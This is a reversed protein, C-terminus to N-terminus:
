EVHQISPNPPTQRTHISSLLLLRPILHLIALWRNKALGESRVVEEMTLTIAQSVLTKQRPPLTKVTPYPRHHLHLHDLLCGEPTLVFADM